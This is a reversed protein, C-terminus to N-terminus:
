DHMWRAAAWACEKSKLRSANAKRPKSQSVILMKTTVVGNITSNFDVKQAHEPDNNPEKETSEPL